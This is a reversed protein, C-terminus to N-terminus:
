GARHNPHSRGDSVPPLRGRMGPDGMGAAKPRGTRQHEAHRVLRRDDPDEHGSSHRRSAQVRRRLAPVGEHLMAMRAHPPLIARLSICRAASVSHHPASPRLGRHLGSRVFGMRRCTALIKGAAEYGRGERAWEQLEERHPPKRYGASYCLPRNETNDTIAGIFVALRIHRASANSPAPSPFRVRTLLKPLEQEVM